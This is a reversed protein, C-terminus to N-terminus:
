PGTTCTPVTLMSFAAPCAVRGADCTVDLAALEADLDSVLSGFLNRVSAGYTGGPALKTNTGRTRGSALTVRVVVTIERDTPNVVSM